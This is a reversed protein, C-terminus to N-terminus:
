SDGCVCEYTGDELDIIALPETKCKCKHDSVAIEYDNTCGILLVSIIMLAISILAVSMFVKCLDRDEYFNYKKDKMKIMGIQKEVSIM